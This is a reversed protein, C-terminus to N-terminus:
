LRETEATLTTIKKHQYVLTGLTAVVLVSGIIYAKM